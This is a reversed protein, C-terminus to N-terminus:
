RLFARIAEVLFYIVTVIGIVNFLTVARIAWRPYQRQLIVPIQRALGEDCRIGANINTFNTPEFYLYSIIIQQGPVLTPILIDRGSNPVDETTHQVAPLIVFDPLHHHSLRVNTASQRGTNRLVVSHTNVFIPQGNPPVARFAAVHGYFAILRPRQEFLRTVWITLFVLLIPEAIERALNWDM